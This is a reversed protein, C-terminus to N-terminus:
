GKMLGRKTLEIRSKLRETLPYDPFTLTYEEFLAEIKAIGSPDGTKEALELAELFLRASESGSEDSELKAKLELLVTRLGLEPVTKLMEIACAEPAEIGECEFYFGRRFAELVAEVHECDGGKPCTCISSGGSLDVEQFYPYEDLVKGFLKDGKRVVWLVRGLSYLLGGDMPM